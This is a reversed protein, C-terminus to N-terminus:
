YVDITHQALLGTTSPKQPGALRAVLYFWFAMIATILAIIFILVIFQCITCSKIDLDSM